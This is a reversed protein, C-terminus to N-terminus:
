LYDLLIQLSSAMLLHCAQLRGRSVHPTLRVERHSLRAALILARGRRPGPEVGARHRIWAGTGMRRTGVRFGQHRKPSSVNGPPAVFNM